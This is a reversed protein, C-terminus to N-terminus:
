TRIWKYNANSVLDCIRRSSKHMHREEACCAVRRRGSFIGSNRSTRENSRCKGPCQWTMANGRHQKLDPPSNRRREQRMGHKVEHKKTATANCDGCLWPLPDPKNELMWVDPFSTEQRSQTGTPVIGHAITANRDSVRRGEPRATEAPPSYLAKTLARDCRYNPTKQRSHPTTHV